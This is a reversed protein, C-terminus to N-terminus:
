RGCRLGAGSGPTGASFDAESLDSLFVEGTGTSLWQNQSQDVWQMQSPLKVLVVQPQCHRWPSERGFIFSFGYSLRMASHLKGARESCCLVWCKQELLLFGREPRGSRQQVFYTKVGLAFENLLCYCFYNACPNKKFSVDLDVIFCVLGLFCAFVSM